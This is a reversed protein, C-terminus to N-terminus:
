LPSGAADTVTFLVPAAVAAVAPAIAEALSALGAGLAPLQDFPIRLADDAKVEIDTPVLGLTLEGPRQIQKSESM